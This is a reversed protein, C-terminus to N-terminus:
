TLPRTKPPKKPLIFVFGKHKVSGTITTPHLNAFFPWFSKTKSFDIKDHKITNKTSHTLKIINIHQNYSINASHQHKKAFHDSTHAFILSFSSDLSFTYFICTKCHHSSWLTFPSSSPLIFTTSTGYCELKLALLEVSSSVIILLPPNKDFRAASSM